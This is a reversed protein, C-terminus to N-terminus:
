GKGDSLGAVIADNVGGDMARAALNLANAVAAADSRGHGIIVTGAVGLLHAGGYEAYDINRRLSHLAEESWRVAHRKLESLVLSLMFGAFGELLKLVINGTFGDTVVVDAKAEFIDGGEINGVFPFRGAALLGHSEKLLDTGKSAEEGINLLGIRPEPQGLCARMYAAGMVGYQYLHQPKPSINAGMDLLTVPQGTLDLTVAIGPRRVGPLTGLSLTAAGVTAGTNGMGVFAGAAERHVALMGRAISSNPKARLATAPSEGMGIVQDADEIGFGPDGGLEALRREILQRPGVLLVREAPLSPGTADAGRSCALLAGRLPADPADDGGMVDLAIRNGAM